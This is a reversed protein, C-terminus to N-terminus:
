RIMTNEVAPAELADKSAFYYELIEAAIEAVLSGSGGHEVVISLAIEPDDYPAFAVLIAHAEKDRHVQATGTKAGVKVPLDRFYVAASGVSAVMGMGKKVAVINSESLGLQDLLEPEQELLVQSFDSSKVTKLLHTKYHNGGNVLTAVYNALQIPTVQTNGQGIAAYMTEGEYWTQDHNKSSEPGAVEGAAEYLELGTTRGLGFKAAYEDLKSIGLRLGTEYFFVNCSDRIAESVNVYGHTRGYQRYYWCQPQDEIREYHKYRGTDEIKEQRTIVGEELAGAAVAMKFTSGPAYLGQLARNYLPQLPDDLLENYSSYYEAPDYSPFSASALVGGTMDLVVCAAKQSEATMGPVHRRLSEEVVEQLKIDLTLMPTSGPGPLQAEGTEPDIHWSESVIKGNQNYEVDKVGSTGRLLDEFAQEVGDKCVVDNMSYGKEQYKDWEEQFIPGVQGLLHAAYKTNYERVTATDIRVGTLRREKVVTIFSIDVDQAFVYSSATYIDRSRLSLEYLVGVLARGEAEGVSDDVEFWTRLSRILDAAAPDEPLPDKKQTKLKLSDVMKSLRTATRTEAGADDTTVVSYPSDVTYRFPLDQTVPLTDVWEVGQERCVALLSLITGNREQPTGMMSTDLTVQYTARNSVLVRGYRDLISGRSAQVTETNAIKMTSQALYYSGNVVQLDFLAWLLLAFALGLLALIVRSRILFRKADM